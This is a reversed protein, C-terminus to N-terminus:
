DDHILNFSSIEWKSFITETQPYNTKSRYTTAAYHPSPFLNPM